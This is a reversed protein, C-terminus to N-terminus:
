HYCLDAVLRVRRPMRFQHTLTCLTLLNGSSGVLMVTITVTMGLVLSWEQCDRYPNSTTSQDTTPSALTVSPTNNIVDQSWPLQDKLSM